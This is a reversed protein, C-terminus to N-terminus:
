AVGWDCRADRIDIEQLESPTDSFSSGQRVRSLKSSGELEDEVKTEVTWLQDEFFDSHGNQKHSDVDNRRKQPANPGRTIAVPAEDPRFTKEVHQVYSGKLFAIFGM